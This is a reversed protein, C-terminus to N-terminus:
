AAELCTALHFRGIEAVEELSRVHQFKERLLKSAPM